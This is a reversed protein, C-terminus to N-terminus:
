QSPAQIGLLLDAAAVADTDKENPQNDYAAADATARAARQEDERMSQLVEGRKGDRPGAAHLSKRKRRNVKTSAGQVPQEANLEKAPLDGDAHNDDHAADDSHRHPEHGGDEQAHSLWRAHAWDIIAVLQKRYDGKPELYWSRGFRKYKGNGCIITFALRSFPKEDSYEGVQVLCSQADSPLFNLRYPPHWTGTPGAESGEEEEALQQYPNDYLTECQEYVAQLLVVVSAHLNPAEEHVEEHSIFQWSNADQQRATDM